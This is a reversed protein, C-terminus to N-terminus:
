SGYETVAIRPSTGAFTIDGTYITGEMQSTSAGLGDDNGTGGKLVINYVSSTAAVPGFAVFVPNTGVNQIIWGLRNSNSAMATGASTNIASTKISVTPRYSLM